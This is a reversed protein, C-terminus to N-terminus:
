NITKLKIGDASKVAINLKMGFKRGNREGVLLGKV